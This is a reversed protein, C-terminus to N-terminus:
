EEKNWQNAVEQLIDEVNKWNGNGDKCSIGFEELASVIDVASIFNNMSLTENNM